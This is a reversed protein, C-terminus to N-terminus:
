GNSGGRLRNELEAWAEPTLPRGCKPCHNLKETEEEFIDDAAKQMCFGAYLKYRSDGLDGCWECSEWAERNIHAPPYSYAIWTEGYEELIYGAASKALLVLYKGRDWYILRWGSKEPKELDEVWVPRGDMERLQELTLKVMKTTDPFHDLVAELCTRMIDLQEAWEPTMPCGNLEPALELSRIEEKIWAISKERREQNM